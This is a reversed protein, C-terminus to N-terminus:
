QKQSRKRVDVKLSLIALQVAGTVTLVYGASGRSTCGIREAAKALNDVWELRIEEALCPLALLSATSPNATSCYRLGIVDKLLVMVSADLNDSWGFELNISAFDRAFEISLFDHDRLHLQHRSTM